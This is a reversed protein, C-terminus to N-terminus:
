TQEGPLHSHHVGRGPTVLKRRYVTRRDIGLQRAAEAVTVYQDRDPDYGILTELRDVRPELQDLRAALAPLDVDTM